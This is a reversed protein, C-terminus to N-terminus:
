ETQTSASGRLSAVRQALATDTRVRAAIANYTASDLNHQTLTTRISNLQTENLAAGHAQSQITSIEASAAAFAQLQADTYTASAGAQAAPAAAPAAPAAPDAWAAGAFAALSIAAAAALAIKKM